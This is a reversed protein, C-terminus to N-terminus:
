VYFNLRLKSIANKELRSVQAQSVDLRTAIETQTCGQYYRMVIVDHEKEPLSEVGEKLVIRDAYDGDSRPDKLLDIIEVGDGDDSYVEEYVSQPEALADLASVVEYYPLILAEAIEPLTAEKLGEREIRERVQVAKYAVDRVSRGVKFATGERVFRRIEGIVMPVAYTSFKLGLTADFNDLAKILGLMGVQFLDDSSEKTNRFKQVASLVLRANALLFYEKLENQGSKIKFLLDELEVGTLKPLTSVDIGIVKKAM